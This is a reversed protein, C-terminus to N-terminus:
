QRQRRRHLRRTTCDDLRATASVHLHCQSLELWATSVPNPCRFCRRLLTQQPPYVWVMRRPNHTPSFRDSCPDIHAISDVVVLMTCKSFVKQNVASRSTLRRSFSESHTLLAVATILGSTSTTLRDANQTSYTKYECKAFAKGIKVEVSLGGCSENFKCLGHLNCEDILCEDVDSLPLRYRQMRVM